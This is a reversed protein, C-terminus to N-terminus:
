FVSQSVNRDTLEDTPFFVWSAEDYFDHKEFQQTYIYNPQGHFSIKVSSIAPYYFTDSEDTAM